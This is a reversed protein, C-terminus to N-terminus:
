RWFRWWPQMPRSDSTVEESKSDSPPPPLPPSPINQVGAQQHRDNRERPTQPPAAVVGSGAQSPAISSEPQEAVESHRLGVMRLMSSLLDIVSGDSPPSVPARGETDSSQKSHDSVDARMSDSLEPTSAVPSKDEKSVAARVYKKWKEKYEMEFRNQINSQDLRKMRQGIVRIAEADDIEEDQVQLQGPKEQAFLREELQQIRFLLDENSTQISEEKLFKQENAQIEAPRSTEPLKPKLHPNEGVNQSITRAADVEVAPNKGVALTPESQEAQNIEQFPEQWIQSVASYIANFVNAVVSIVYNLAQEDIDYQRNEKMAKNKADIIANGLQETYENEGLMLKLQALEQNRHFEYMMPKGRFECYLAIVIAPLLAFLINWVWWRTDMVVLGTKYQRKMGEGESTQNPDESYDPNWHQYVKSRLWTFRSQALDLLEAAPAVSLGTDQFRNKPIFQNTDMLLRLRDRTTIIKPPQTLLKRKRQNRHVKPTSSSIERRFECTRLKFDSSITLPFIQRCIRYANSFEQKRIWPLPFRQHSPASFNTSKATSIFNSILRSKM